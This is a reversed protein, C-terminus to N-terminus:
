YWFRLNPFGNEAVRILVIRPLSPQLYDISETTITYNEDEHDCTIPGENISPLRGELRKCSDFSRVHLQPSLRLFGTHLVNRPQKVTNPTQDLNETMISQLYVAMM